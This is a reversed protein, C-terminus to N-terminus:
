AAKEGRKGGHRSTVLAGVVLLFAAGTALLGFRLGRPRYIMEVEHRGAPVAVARFGVNARLLPAERDDLRATWGPDFAELAIVYGASDLRAELHLRDPRAEILHCEAGFAADHAIATGEPLVVEHRPDFSPDVLLRLAALGDAVRAGDVAYVRPFPDEVRMLYVPGAFASTETAVPELDELGERHLAVAHTVGAIRLLRLLEPTEESMQFQLSLYHVGRPQLGLWDRDFSGFLGFRAATPPSLFDRRALAAALPPSVDRPANRSPIDPVARRYPKGLLTVVYEWTALRVFGTPPLHALIAPPAEFLAEPATVNLSRHAQLLDLGVLGVLVLAGSATLASRAVLLIAAIGLAAALFLARAADGLSQDILRLAVVVAVLAAVGGAVRAVLPGRRGRERERFADFGLAALLAWSLAMLVTVKVPYRLSRLPPVLAVLAPYALGYRGLALLTSGGFVLALFLAHRRPRPVFAAATLPLASLGLYLSAMFPERNEYLTTRLDPPLPLEHPFVPLAVQLLLAPHVSWFTRVAEPLAERASGRWLDLAPLLLGACLALAVGAATIATVLIWGGVRPREPDRGDTFRHLGWFATLAATFVCMDFSGALAQLGMAGGWILGRRLSAERLANDAAVLVVPMLCAGALHHWLNVLSLIPGSLMWLIAAGASAVPSAGLRVALARLGLAGVVLHLFVYVTYTRGPSLVLSLWTPPYLVQAAPNALLPQGFGPWPDWVPWSGARIARAFSAYQGYLMQHLDREFLVEGGFILGPFLAALLALLLLAFRLDRSVSAPPSM